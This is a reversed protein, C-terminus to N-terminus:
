GVGQVDRLKVNTTYRENIIVGRVFIMFHDRQFHPWDERNRTIEDILHELSGLTDSSPISIQITRENPEKLLFTYNEPM